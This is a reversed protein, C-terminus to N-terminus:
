QSKLAKVGGSKVTNTGLFAEEVCSYKLLQNNIEVNKESLM